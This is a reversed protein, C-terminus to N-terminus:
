PYLRVAESKCHDLLGKEEPAVLEGIPWNLNNTGGESRNRLVEIQTQYEVPLLRSQLTEPTDDQYIELRNHHIVKGSDYATTVEHTTAETFFCRGTERVFSLRAAHVRVGHMGKGGFDLHSSRLPGPHQNVIRGEFAEIVNSPTLPLWGYQGVFDAKYKKLYYLIVAGFHYRDVKYFRSDVVEINQVGAERLKEIGGAKPNSSIVCAIEVNLLDGASVANQIATATTGGGSILMAVRLKSM